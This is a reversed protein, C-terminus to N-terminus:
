FLMSVTQKDKDMKVTYTYREFLRVSIRQDDKTFSLVPKIKVLDALMNGEQSDIVVPTNSDIVPECIVFYKELNIGFSEMVVPIFKSIMNIAEFYKGSLKNDNKADNLYEKLELQYIVVVEVPVKNSNYLVVVAMSNNEQNNEKRLKKSKNDYYYEKM